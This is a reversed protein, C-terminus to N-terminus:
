STGFANMYGNGLCSPCNKKSTIVAGFDAGFKDSFSAANPATTENNNVLTGSGKCEDCVRM